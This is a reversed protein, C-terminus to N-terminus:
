AFIRKIYVFRALTQYCAFMVNVHMNWFQNQHQEFCEHLTFLLVLLYQKHEVFM